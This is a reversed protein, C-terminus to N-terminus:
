LARGSVEAESNERCSASYDWDMVSIGCCLNLAPQELFKLPIQSEQSHDGRMPM